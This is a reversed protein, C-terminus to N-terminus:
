ITVMDVISMHCIRVQKAILFPSNLKNFTTTLMKKSIELKLHIDASCLNHILHLAGCYGFSSDSAYSCFFKTEFVFFLFFCEFSGDFLALELMQMITEEDLDLPMMHSILGPYLSQCSVSPDHLRLTLKHKKSIKNTHLLGSIFQFLFSM